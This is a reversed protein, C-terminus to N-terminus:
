QKLLWVDTIKSYQRWNLHREDPRDFTITLKGDEILEPPLPFEKFTELEKEYRSPEVLVGDARLLAEGYGSVRITYSADPDLRAYELVPSFQFLQTSLRKRSFGDDWWAYDIADDTRSTVHPSKSVDSINDYFGGMGPDEWKSLVKLHELRESESDLNRIKEFEDELWWRNNLPYDIFDLIAGREYGRAQYKPVSTQLGVSQFLDECYDVVRTRLEVAVPTEDAKQLTKLALNMARESGMEPANLLISNTEKELKTEYILRRRTFADYYARMVLQQWRWNKALERHEKELQQWLVLTSEVSGNEALPGDWNRELALIGDAAMEAVDAGFFFHCYEIMIDRPSQEPNMGLQSWVVKNVDDHIGDSYSLFGDTFPMDEHFVRFYYHPQPNTCERGLTLAYAQDWNETPYQCRVTHTIDGYLRHQYKVPLHQRELEIPPSSPGYGVGRLWDPSNDQIYNFFYRVKEENFGQLSIWVGAEPHYRHLIGALAKLFPMVDAPHNDGPDGGPFFVGDLRPCDKYFAEHKELEAKRLAEDKLDFSAPTWVWYEMDYSACIKSMEINMDERSVKMHVSPPGDQFPINEIANTGFLALERIYKDFQEVTWADWSNATNRYGLQHGRLPYAPSCSIDLSDPLRIAGKSMDATGLFKGLAYMLGRGDAGLLWVQRGKTILRYGEPKHEPYIDGPGRRLFGKENLEDEDSLALCVVPSSDPVVDALTIKVGTRQSIEETLIRILSERIPSPVNQSIVFTANTLDLQRTTDPRACSTYLLALWSLIIASKRKIM